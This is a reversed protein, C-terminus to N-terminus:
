EIIGKQRFVAQIIDFVGVMGVLRGAKDTVPVEEKLHLRMLKYAEELSTDELISIFEREMIDEVVVLNGIDDTIDMKFIDIEEEDLFPVLKLVDPHYSSLADILDRFSVIGILRKDNEIVPVLPFIHFKDFLKLLQRLTSSRTVSIVQGSMIDKIQM